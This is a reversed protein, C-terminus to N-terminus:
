CTSATRRRSAIGIGWPGFRGLYANFTVAYQQNSLDQLLVLRRTLRSTTHRAAQVIEFGFLHMHNRIRPAHTVHAWEWAPIRVGGALLFVHQARYPLSTLVHLYCASTQMIRYWETHTAKRIPSWRVKARKFHFPNKSRASTLLSLTDNTHFEDTWAQM